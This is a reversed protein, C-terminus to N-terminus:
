VSTWPNHFVISPYVGTGSQLYFILAHTLPADLDTLAGEIAGFDVAGSSSVMLNSVAVSEQSLTSGSIQLGQVQVAYIGTEQPVPLPTDGLSM